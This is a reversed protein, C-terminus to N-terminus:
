LASETPPLRRLDQDPDGRRVEVEFVEIGVNCDGASSVSVGDLGNEDADGAKGDRAAQAVQQAKQKAEAASKALLGGKRGFCRSLLGPASHRNVGEGVKVSLLSNSRPDTVLAVLCAPHFKASFQQQQLRRLSDEKRRRKEELREQKGRQLELEREHRQLEREM